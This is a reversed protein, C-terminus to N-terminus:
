NAFGFVVLNKLQADTLLGGLFAAFDKRVADPADDPTTMRVSASIVDLTVFNGNTDNYGYPMVLTMLGARAKKSSRAQATKSSFELKPYAAVSAGERLYLIASEDGAASRAVTFTKSVPTSAGNNVAINTTM